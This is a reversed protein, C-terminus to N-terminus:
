AAVPAPLRAAALEARYTKMAWQGIYVWAEGDHVFELGIKPALTERLVAIQMLSEARVIAPAALSATLGLLLGRRNM